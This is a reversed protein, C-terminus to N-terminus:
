NLKITIISFNIPKKILRAAVNANSLIKQKINTPNISTDLKFSVYKNM